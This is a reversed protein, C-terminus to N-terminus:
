THPPTTNAGQRQSGSSALFQGLDAPRDSHTCRDLGPNKADMELTRRRLRGVILVGSIVHGLVVKKKTIGEKTREM